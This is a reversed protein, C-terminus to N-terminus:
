RESSRRNIGCYGKRTAGAVDVPEGNVTVAAKRCWGPIRLWLTAPVPEPAGVTIRIDGDWPYATQQTLRLAKGGVDFDITSAAYLHIAVNEDDHSAIYGGLSAVLRALNTPCCPCYHWLWRRHKRRM